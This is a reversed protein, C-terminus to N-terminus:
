FRLDLMTEKRSCLLFIPPSFYKLPLLVKNVEREMRNILLAMLDNDGALSGVTVDYQGHPSFTVRNPGRLNRRSSDMKFFIREMTRDKRM